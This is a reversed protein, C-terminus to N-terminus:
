QFIQKDYILTILVNQVAQVAISHGQKQQSQKRENLFVRVQIPDEYTFITEYFYAERLTAPLTVNASTSGLPM